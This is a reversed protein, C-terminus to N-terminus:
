SMLSKGQLEKDSAGQAVVPVVTEVDGLCAIVGNAYTLFNAYEKQPFRSEGPYIAAASMDCVAKHPLKKFDVDMPSTDVEDANCKALQNADVTTANQDSLWVDTYCKIKTLAAYEVKWKKILTETAEKHSNYLSKADEYCSTQASCAFNLHTKWQCFAGEFTFQDKNCEAKQDGLQKEADKCATNLDTVTPGKPCFYTSMTEVYKVMQARPKNTPMNSPVNVDKLFKDLEGCKTDKEAEKVKEEERCASHEIRLQDVSKETTSSIKRLAGQQNANCEEVVAINKTVQTEAADHTSKLDPLLEEVVIDQIVKIKDHEPVAQTQAMDEVELLVKHVTPSMMPVDESQDELQEQEQLAGNPSVSVVRRQNRVVSKHSKGAALWLGQTLFILFVHSIGLM